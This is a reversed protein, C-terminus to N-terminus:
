SRHHSSPLSAPNGRPEGRDKSRQAMDSGNDTHTAGATEMFDGQLGSVRDVSGSHGKLVGGM